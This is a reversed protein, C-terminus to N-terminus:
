LCVAMSIYGSQASGHVKDSYQHLKDKRFTRAGESGHSYKLVAVFRVHLHTVQECCVISYLAYDDWVFLRSKM